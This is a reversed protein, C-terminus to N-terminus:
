LDYYGAILNQLGPNSSKQILKEPRLWKYDLINEDAPNRSIDIQQDGSEVEFVTLVIQDGDDKEGVFFHYIGIPDGIEIEISLEERIERRLAELPHEGHEVKGGPLVWYIRDETKTRLALIKGEREILAKVAPKVQNKM